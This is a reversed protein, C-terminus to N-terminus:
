SDYKAADEPAVVEGTLVNKLYTQGTTRNHVEAVPYKLFNQYQYGCLLCEVMWDADQDQVVLRVIQEGHNPCTLYDEPKTNPM